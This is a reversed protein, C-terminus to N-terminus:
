VFNIARDMAPALAAAPLGIQEWDLATLPLAAIAAINARISLISNTFVLCLECMCEKARLQVIDNNRLQKLIWSMSCYDSGMLQLFARAVVDPPAHLRIV